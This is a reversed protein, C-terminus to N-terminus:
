LDTKIKIDKYKMKPLGKLRKLSDNNYCHFATEHGTMVTDQANLRKLNPNTNCYYNGEIEKPGNSLDVLGSRSVGLGGKGILPSIYKLSKLKECCCIDLEDLQKPCGELSSFNELNLLDIKEITEPCGILNELKNCEQINLVNLQKPCGKLNPFNCYTLQLYKVSDPLGTLDQLNLSNDIYLKGISVCNDNLGKLSKLKPCKICLVKIKQPFPGIIKTENSKICMTGEIEKPLNYSSKFTIHGHGKIKNIKVYDPIPSKFKTISDIFELNCYLIGDIYEFTVYKDINNLFVEYKNTSINNCLWEKVKQQEEEKLKKAILDDGIDDNDNQIIDDYDDFLNELLKRILKNM